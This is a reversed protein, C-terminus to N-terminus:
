EPRPLYLPRVKHEAGGIGAALGELADAARRDSTAILADFCRSAYYLAFLALHADKDVLDRIVGKDGSCPDGTVGASMAIRQVDSRRERCLRGLVDEVREIDTLRAQLWPPLETCLLMSVIEGFGRALLKDERKARASAVIVRFGSGRPAAGRLCECIEGRIAELSHAADGGSRGGLIRKANTLFSVDLIVICRTM